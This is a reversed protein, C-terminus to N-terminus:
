AFIRADAGGNARQSRPIESNSFVFGIEESESLQLMQNENTGKNASVKGV